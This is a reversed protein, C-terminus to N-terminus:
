AADLQAEFENMLSIFDEESLRKELEREVALSVLIEEAETKLNMARAITLLMETSQSAIKAELNAKAQQQTM